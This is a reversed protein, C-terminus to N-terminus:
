PAARRAAAAMLQPQAALYREGEPWDGGGDQSDASYVAHLIGPLYRRERFGAPLGAYPPLGCAALDASFDEPSAAYIGADSRLYIVGDPHHHFEAM